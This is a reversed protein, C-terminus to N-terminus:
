QPRIDANAYPYLQASDETIVDVSKSKKRLSLEEVVTKNRKIQRPKKTNFTTEKIATIGRFAINHSANEDANETKHCDHCILLSQTPRQTNKGQCQYHIKSTNKPDVEIWAKQQQNLKYKTYNGLKGLAVNLISRNLGSKANANNSLYQRGTEDVKKKAKKTINKLKLDEFALIPTSAKALQKSWHHCANDRIHAIKLHEKKIKDKLHQQKKSECQKTKNKNLRKKRALLRQYHKIKANHKKLKEKQTISYALTLGRNTHIPVVVGRDVGTIIEQLENESLHAFDQLLQSNSQVVQGNNFSGSLFFTRGQRSLYFQKSISDKPYPLLFSFLINRKKKAHEYICLRSHEDDIKEIFFLEQTILCNRKKFKNKIKPFKRLGKRAAEADRFVLSSANRLIQVPVNKLFSLDKNLKIFAYSQNLENNNFLNNKFDNIKQNRIVNACGIWQSFIKAQYESLHHSIDLSFGLTSM